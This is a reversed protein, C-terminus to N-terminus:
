YEGQAQETLYLVFQGVSPFHAKEMMAAKPSQRPNETEEGTSRGAGLPQRRRDGGFMVVQREVDVQRACTEFADFGDLDHQGLGRAPDDEVGEVQLKALDGDLHTAGCLLCCDSQIRRSLCGCEGNGSLNGRTRCGNM